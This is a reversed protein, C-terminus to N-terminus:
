RAILLMDISTYATITVVIFIQGPFLSPTNNFFLWMSFMKLIMYHQIVVFLVESM